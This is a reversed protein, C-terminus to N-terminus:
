KPIREQIKQKQNLRMRLRARTHESNQTGCLYWPQRSILDSFCRWICPTSKVWMVGSFACRTQLRQSFCLACWAESTVDCARHTVIRSEAFRLFYSFDLFCQARATLSWKQGAFVKAYIMLVNHVRLSLVGEKEGYVQASYNEQNSVAWRQGAASSGLPLAGQAVGWSSNSCRGFPCCGCYWRYCRPCKPCCGAVDQLRALTRWRVRSPVRLLMRSGWFLMSFLEGCWASCIDVISSPWRHLFRASLSTFCCYHM